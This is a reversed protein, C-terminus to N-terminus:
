KVRVPVLAVGVWSATAATGLAAKVGGRLLGLEWNFTARLTADGAAGGERGSTDDLQLNRGVGAM